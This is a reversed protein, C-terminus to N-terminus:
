VAVREAGRRPNGTKLRKRRKPIRWPRRSSSWMSPARSEPRLSDTIMRSREDGEILKAFRFVLPDGALIGEITVHDIYRQLTTDEEGFGDFPDLQSRAFNGERDTIHELELTYEEKHLPERSQAFLVEPSGSPIYLPVAEAHESGDNANRVTVRSTDSFAIDESFRLADRFTDRNM